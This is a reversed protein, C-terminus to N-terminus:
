RACRQRDVFNVVEAHASPRDIAHRAELERALQAVVGWEGAASARDLARALAVEVDDRERNSAAASRPPLGKSPVERDEDV